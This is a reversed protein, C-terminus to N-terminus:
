KHKLKLSTTNLLSTEVIEDFIVMIAVGRNRSLNNMLINSHM